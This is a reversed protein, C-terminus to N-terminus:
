KEVFQRLMSDVVTKIRQLREEESLDDFIFGQAAARWAFQKTEGDLVFILMTGKELDPLDPLGPNLGFTESLQEDSLDDESELIYGIFFTPQQEVSVATFGRNVLNLEIEETVLPYKAGSDSEQLPTFAFTSTEDLMIEKDHISSIALQTQAHEVETNVQVCASTALLMIATILIRM